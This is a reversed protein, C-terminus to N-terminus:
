RAAGGLSLRYARLRSAFRASDFESSWRLDQRLEALEPPRPADLKTRNAFDSLRELALVLRQARWFLLERPTGATEVFEGDLAVLSRTTQGAFEAGLNQESAHRALTDAQQQARSFNETADIPLLTRDASTVKGLLWALARWQALADENPIANTSLHWSLERLAVAQGTLWARVGIDEPDRWHTPEAVSQSDLEFVLPPHGAAAIDRDLNQHCAVCTNARVYLSRLDRMGAGVRTAYTWDPRTHGRLWSGAAGHCSECSVSETPDVTSALQAPAVAQFPSHCVTCRASSTAATTGAHAPLDLAAAIRESHANTLTAYGRTHIDRKTWTIFQNRKEGAGGHCSSSKCGVAGIFQTRELKVQRPEAAPVSRIQLSVFVFVLSRIM